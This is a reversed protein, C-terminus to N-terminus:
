PITRPTLPFEPRGFAQPLGGIKSRGNKQPSTEKQENKQCAGFGDITLDEEVGCYLIKDNEYPFAPDVFKSIGYRTVRCKEDDFNDTNFQLNCTTAIKQLPKQAQVSGTLAVFVVIMYLTKKLVKKRAIQWSGMQPSDAFIVNTKNARFLFLKQLIEPNM